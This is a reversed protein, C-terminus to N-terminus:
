KKIDKEESYNENSFFVPVKLSFISLSNIILTEALFFNLQCALMLNDLFCTRERFSLKAEM